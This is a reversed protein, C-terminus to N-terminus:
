LIFSSWPAPWTGFMADTRAIAEERLEHVQGAGWLNSFTTGGLFVAGLDNVSCRIDPDDDTVTCRASGDADVTLEFRGENWPCFRDEVDIVVRDPVAYGRLELAAPVDVLRVWLADGLRMRLYRPQAVLWMLPEDAPRNWADVKAVLDIDLVYRWLDAYAEPSEAILERIDVQLAAISDAWEHKVAYVAYGDARGQPDRHIVHFPKSDEDRPREYWRWESWSGALELMGPRRRRARDYVDRIVPIAADRELLEISGAQRYGRVFGSHHADISLVGLLSAMGYGYRGYIGGESAWLAAFPEAREHMDELQRRMLASNIGRRRHTPQVGVATVFACTARREGPLTMEIPLSAAGGVIRDGDFAAFYREPIAVLRERKMDAENVRDSFALEVAAFYVELKEDTIPRIEIDM